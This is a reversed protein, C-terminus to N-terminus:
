FVGVNTVHESTCDYVLIALYSSHIFRYLVNFMLHLVTFPYVKIIEVIYLLLVKM